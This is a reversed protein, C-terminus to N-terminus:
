GNQIDQETGFPILSFFNSHAEWHCNACLYICNELEAELLAENETTYAHSNIWQSIAFNKKDSDLHHFSLSRSCNDYGCISCKTYGNRSLWNRWQTARFKYSVSLRTRNQEALVEYKESNQNRWLTTRQISCVKCESKLGNPQHKDKYFREVGKEKGCTPCVKTKM